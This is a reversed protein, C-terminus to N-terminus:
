PLPTQVAYIIGADSGVYVFGTLRDLTPAGVVALGDGLTVSTIATPPLPVTSFDIQYLSGDKGGVYILTTGPNWLVISPTPPIAGPLLTSWGLSASPGTDAIGWVINTTAFYLASGNRDPFLFGKVPGDGTNFPVPWKLTGDPNVAHVVGANNGVYIVGNRLIPSGDIDGLDVPWGPCLVGLGTGTLTLCWLTGNSEAPVKKRSAFYVRQGAYDVAAGGSIIGIGAPAGGNDFSNVPSGTKPNLAFFKNDGASDWTGVLGYDWAGGFDKFIGALAAQVRRTPDLPPVLVRQWKEQGTIADVARATGDQVGLLVLEPSGAILSPAM